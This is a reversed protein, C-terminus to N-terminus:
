RSKAMGKLSLRYKYLCYYLALEHRRQEEPYIRNVHMHILDAALRHLREASYDQVRRRIQDLRRTFLGNARALAHPLAAHTGPFNSFLEKKRERYLGDLAVRLQKGGSFEAIFNECVEKMLVIQTESHPVLSDLIAQMARLCFQERYQGAKDWRLYDLVLQSSAHFFSEVFEILEPGYRELERRYTDASFERVFRDKVLASFYNKFLRIVLATHEGAIKIRVRIHYGPDNYRIFFWELPGTKSLKQIIPFIREGLLEDSASAKCYLKYYLWESGLIFERKITQRGPREYPAAEYVRDRNALLAIFQNVVPMRKSTIVQGSGSPLLAERLTFSTMAAISASFIQQDGPSDLDFTLQQDFRTLAIHRPLSLRKRLSLANEKGGPNKVHWEAASLIIGGFEARPYHDMGPFYAAPSFTLDAKLGQFQLDCLFRFLALHNHRFNYATSLRPIVRKKLSASELIVSGDRVSVLLDSPLVQRGRDLLSCSNIPIEYDYIIQRRNINDTHADTLQVIDAFIVGPNAASEARASARAMEHIDRSLSTFRGCLSTGTAGGASEIYLGEGTLRFIVSIGPPFPKANEPLAAIDAATFRIVPDEPALRQWKELLLRHADSWAISPQAGEEGPFDIDKLLGGKDGQSAFPGYGVGIEPDLAEMLPVKQNEFRASFDKIFQELHPLPAPQSLKSLADLATQLESQYGEDLTGKALRLTNAYFWQAPKTPDKKGAESDLQATAEALSGLSAAITAVDRFRPIFARWIASLRGHESAHRFFYSEGTLNVGDVQSIIQAGTLFHFYEQAEGSSCGTLSVLLSTIESASMPGNSLKRCLARTAPNIEFSELVFHLKGKAGQESKIFRYEKGAKYLTSNLQYHIEAAGPEQDRAVLLSLSHDPELILRVGGPASVAITKDEGWNVLSVASFLGFPTPRFRMRNIYKNVTLQERASLASYRFGRSSLAQYFGASALFIALRFEKSRLLEEAQRRDGAQLLPTRLLLQPLFYLSM